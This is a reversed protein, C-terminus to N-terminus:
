LCPTSKRASLAVLIDQSGQHHTKKRDVHKSINQLQVSPYNLDCSDSHSPLKLKKIVLPPVLPALPYRCLFYASRM